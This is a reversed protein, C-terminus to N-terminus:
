VRYCKIILFFFLFVKRYKRLDLIGKSNESTKLGSGTVVKRQFVVVVIIVVFVVVTIIVFVADVFFVMRVVVFFM